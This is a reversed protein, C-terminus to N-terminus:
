SPDSLIWWGTLPPLWLLGQPDPVLQADHLMERAGSGLAEHAPYPRWHTTVNYLGVHTGMPHRRIVPLIGSGHLPTIIESPVTTPVDDRDIPPFRGGM